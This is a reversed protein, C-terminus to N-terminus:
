LQRVSLFKRLLLTFVSYFLIFLFMDVSLCWFSEAIFCVLFRTCEIMFNLFIIFYLFVKFCYILCNPFLSFKFFFTSNMFFIFNLPFFMESYLLYYFSSHKPSQEIPLHLFYHFGLSDKIHNWVRDQGTVCINLGM